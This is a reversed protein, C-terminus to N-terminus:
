LAMSISPNVLHVQGTLAERPHITPVRSVFNVQVLFPIYPWHHLHIISRSPSINSYLNINWRPRTYCSGAMLIYLLLLGKRFPCGMVFQM